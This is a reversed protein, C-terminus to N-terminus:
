QEIPYSTSWGPVSMIPNAFAPWQESNMASCADPLGLECARRMFATAYERQPQVGIGNAYMYALYWCAEDDGQSAAYQLKTAVDALEFQRTGTRIMIRAIGKAAFLNEVGSRTYLELARNLDQPRGRGREYAQGVLYCSMPDPQSVIKDELTDLARAVDEDSRREGLFLYQVACNACGSLDGLECAQSFYKAATGHNENVIKGEICILGLENYAAGSNAAEAHAGAAMVLSNGAHPKGDAVAQKWFEVSSGPHPADVFGTGMMGAFLAIWCGMHVLNMKHPSLATEWKQNLSGIVGFRAIRDFIPVCLNLIPVPLLKDWFLPIEALDLVRFLIMYGLAYLVGFIVRGTNTIPSTSPDTILLHIGLFIPAAISINVFFYVGTIQTYIVNGLVLTAAAALTMLTVHFLYQVALGVLFILVVMHPVEFTTAIKTGFTLDDTSATAILALAFVFQGFSSPNFIHRRRGDRDWMIFQKGMAGVVVMAFQLFFWDDKFWLLLNTSLIIPLPGFGVRWTRGLTWSLLADFIYLFVLQGLILPLEAYVDRAFWGWYAMLCIQACAQVYHSKIVAFEIRLAQKRRKAINWLVVEWGVLAVAVGVFSMLLRPNSHIRPLLALSLFLATLALAVKPFRGAQEATVAAPASPQLTATAAPNM